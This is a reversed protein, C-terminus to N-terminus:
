READAVSAEVDEKVEIAGEKAGSFRPTAEAEDSSLEAGSSSPINAGIFIVYGASASEADSVASFKGSGSVAPGPIM